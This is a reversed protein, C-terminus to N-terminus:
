KHVTGHQALWATDKGTGTSTLILFKDAWKHLEARGDAFSFSSLNGHNVAPRDNIRSNDALYLFYGDNLSAPNEDLYVFCDSSGLGLGFQSFKTYSRYNGDILTSGGFGVYANASCSRTREQKYTGGLYKDAPCKYVGPAKAYPGISGVLTRGFGTLGGTGLYFSNTECGVPNEGGGGWAFTGDVWNPKSNYTTDGGDQLPVNAPIKDDNDAGYMISSVALQKMNNICSIGQARLKAKALAPLLMAALIAIIAIVVLLEILTFATRPRDVSPKHRFSRNLYAFLIKM